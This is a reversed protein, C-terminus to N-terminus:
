DENRRQEGLKKRERRSGDRRRARFGPTGALNSASARTCRYGPTHLETSSAPGLRARQRPDQFPTAHRRPRAPWRSSAVAVFKAKDVM